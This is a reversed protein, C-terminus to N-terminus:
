LVPLLRRGSCPACRGAPRVSLSCCPSIRPTPRCGTIRVDKAPRAREAIREGDGGTGQAPAPPPGSRANSTNHFVGSGCCGQPTGRRCRCARGNPRFRRCPVHLVHVHGGIPVLRGTANRWPRCAKCTWEARSESCSCASTTAPGWTSDGSARIGYRDGVGGVVPGRPGRKARDPLRALVRQGKSVHDRLAHRQAEGAHRSRSAPVRM